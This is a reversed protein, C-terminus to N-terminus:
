PDLPKEHLKQWFNILLVTIAVEDINGVIPLNDALLEFIGASPNALYILSIILAFLYGLKKM